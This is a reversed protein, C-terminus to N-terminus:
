AWHMAVVPGVHLFPPGVQAGCNWGELLWRSPFRTVCVSTACHQHCVWCQQCVGGRHRTTPIPPSRPCSPRFLRIFNNARAAAHHLLCLGHGSCRQFTHFPTWCSASTGSSVQAASFRTRPPRTTHGLDQCREGCSTCRRWIEVPSAAVFGIPEGRWSILLKPHLGARNWVKSKEAHLQTRVHEWVVSHPRNPCLFPRIRRPAAQALSRATQVAFICQDGQM